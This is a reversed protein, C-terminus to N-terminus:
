CARKGMRALSQETQAVRQAALALLKRQGDVGAGRRALAQQVVGVVELRRAPLERRLQELQAVLEVALQEAIAEFLEVGLLGRPQLRHESREGM